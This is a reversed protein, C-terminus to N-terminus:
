KEAFYEKAIEGVDRDLAAQHMTRMVEDDRVHRTWLAFASRYRVYQNEDSKLLAHLKARALDHLPFETPNAKELISAALDRVQPSEDLLGIGCAWAVGEKNVASQIQADVSNWDDNKAAEVLKVIINLVELMTSNEMALAKVMGTATYM